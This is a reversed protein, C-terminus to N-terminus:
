WALYANSDEAFFGQMAQAICGDIFSHKCGGESFPSLSCNWTEWKDSFGAMKWWTLTGFPLHWFTKAECPALLCFCYCTTVDSGCLAQRSLVNQFSCVESETWGTWHCVDSDSCFQAALSERTSCELWSERLLHFPLAWHCRDREERCLFSLFIVM